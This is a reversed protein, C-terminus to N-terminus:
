AAAIVAFFPRSRSSTSRTSSSGRGPSLTGYSRGGSEDFRVNDYVPVAVAVVGDATQKSDRFLSTFERQARPVYVVVRGDWRTRGNGSPWFKLDANVASDVATPWRPAAHRRRAGARDGSTSARPWASRATTGRSPIAPRRSTRTSMATRPSGGVATTACSPSPWRSPSRDPTTTRAAPPHRRGRSTRRTPTATGHGSPDFASGNPRYGFQAFDLQGPGRLDARSPGSRPCPRTSTPWSPRGRRAGARRHRPPGPDRSRGTSWTPRRPRARAAALRRARSRQPAPPLQWIAWTSLGSVTLGAATLRQDRAGGLALRRTVAPTVSRPSWSM